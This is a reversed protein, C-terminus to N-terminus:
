DRARSRAPLLHHVGGTFVLLLLINHSWNVQRTDKMTQKLWAREISMVQM